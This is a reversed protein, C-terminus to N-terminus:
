LSKLLIKYERNKICILMLVIPTRLMICVIRFMRYRVGKNYKELYLKKSEYIHKLRSASWINSQSADSGGELHIIEPGGIITREYGAEAMRQQWDVEECYMFFRPDFGGLEEYISRPVFLDAGTIYDVNKSGIVDKPYHIEKNKLFRLYKATLDKLESKMTLFNGYSHINSGGAGKLIAGLAGIKEKSTCCHDYFFKVANNLLLTDSNLFFLYKGISYEIGLNNARGFGLNENSAILRVQPFEDKLMQRSNDQSDNDVVLIEFKIGHTHAYISHLCDRLLACTNYNVIIISVEM